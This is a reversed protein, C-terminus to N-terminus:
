ESDVSSTTDSSNDDEDDDYSPHYSFDTHVETSKMNRNSDEKLFQRVIEFFNDEPVNFLEITNPIPIMTRQKILHRKCMQCM